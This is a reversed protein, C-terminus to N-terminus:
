YIKEYKKYYRITKILNVVFLVVMIIFVLFVLKNFNWAGILDGHLLRSMARTLGCAPCNCDVFFGSDPCKGGLILPLILTKFICRSPFYKISETPAIGLILFISLLNFVIAQPSGFSVLDLFVNKIRKFLKRLRM